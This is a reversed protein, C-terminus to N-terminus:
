VGGGRGTPTLIHCLQVMALMKKAWHLLKRFVQDRLQSSLQVLCSMLMIKLWLFQTTSRSLKENFLTEM